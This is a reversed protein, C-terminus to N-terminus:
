STGRTLQLNPAQPTFDRVAGTGPAAALPYRKICRKTGGSFGFQIKTGKHRVRFVEHKKKLWARFEPDQGVVATGLKWRWYNLWYPDIATEMGGLGEMARPRNQEYFRHIQAQRARAALAAVANEETLIRHMAQRVAAPLETLDTQLLM